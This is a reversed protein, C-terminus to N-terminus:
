IACRPSRKSSAMTPPRAQGSTPRRGVVAWARVCSRPHDQDARVAQVWRSTTSGCGLLQSVAAGLDILSPESAVADSVLTLAEMALTSAGVFVSQKLIALMGLRGKAGGAVAVRRAQGRSRRRADAWVDNGAEILATHRSGQRERGGGWITWKERFKGDTPSEPGSERRFGPVDLVKMRHLLRSRVRGRETTLDIDIPKSGREVKLDEKELQAWADILLPPQPTGAALSGVADGSFLRMVEVLLPDTRPRIVDRYTWPLPVELADKVLAAAIGDLLDARGIVKHGRARRLGEAMTAAAILDAPSVHQKHERLFKAASALYTEGAKEPGQEWVAQQFGPSPMGSQYGTFSDLRKFSYPVLYSGVRINPDVDPISPPTDQVAPDEREFRAAHYGGCVVLVDGEARAAVGRAWGIWGLMFAEREIDRDGVEEDARLMAFFMKLREGLEEQEVPQEFMHDWLADWGDVGLKEGIELWHKQLEGSRDSYRNQTKTFAGHWGPLDMFRVDAQIERGKTLAIWEPSYACFPTWCSRTQGAENAFTFLAIPLHHPLLMEDLRDNMDAPGEILIVKPKVKEIVHAVRKACAPSHHRVGVYHITTM